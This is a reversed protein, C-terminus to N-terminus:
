PLVGRMYLWGMWKHEVNFDWAPYLTKHEVTLVEFLHKRNIDYSCSSIIVPVKCKNILPVYVTTKVQEAYGECYACLDGSDMDYDLLIAKSRPAFYRICPGCTVVKFDINKELCLSAFYEYRGPDNDIAIIM